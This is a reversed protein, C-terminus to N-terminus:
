YNALDKPYVVQLYKDVHFYIFQFLYSLTCFLLICSLINRFQIVKNKLFINSIIQKSKNDTIFNYSSNLIQTLHLVVNSGLINFRLVPGIFFRM